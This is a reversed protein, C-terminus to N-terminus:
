KGGAAIEAVTIAAFVLFLSGGVYGVVKESVYQGLIGGVSVALGTAAAHGGLAGTIVGTPSSAAALAITAIFSKDGWEAAFVLAFTSAILGSVGKLDGMNEVAEKADAEEEEGKPENADVLTKVGFFM